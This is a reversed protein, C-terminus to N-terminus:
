YEQFFTKEEDTMKQHLSEDYKNKTLNYLYKKMPNIMSFGLWQHSIFSVERGSMYIRLIMHHFGGLNFSQNIQYTPINNSYYKKEILNKRILIYFTKFYKNHLYDQIEPNTKLMLDNLVIEDVNFEKQSKVNKKKSLINFLFNLEKQSFKQIIHDISIFYQKNEKVLVIDDIIFVTYDQSIHKKLNIFDSNIKKYLKRLKSSKLLFFTNNLFNYM